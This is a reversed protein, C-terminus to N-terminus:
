EIEDTAFAVMLTAPPTVERFLESPLYLSDRSESEVLIYVLWDITRERYLCTWSYPDSAERGAADTSDENQLVLALRQPGHRRRFVIRPIRMKRNGALHERNDAHIADYRITSNRGYVRRLHLTVPGHWESQKPEEIPGNEGSAEAAGNKVGDHNHAPADIAVGAQQLTDGSDGALPVPVDVSAEPAQEPLHERSWLALLDCRLDRAEALIPEANVADLLRVVSDSARYADDTAFPVQHAWRNRVDTIEHILSLNHQGLSGRFVENWRFKLLDLLAKTDLHPLQSGDRAVPLPNRLAVQAEDLWADGYAARMREEVFPRLGQQVLKLGRGVFDNNNTTV